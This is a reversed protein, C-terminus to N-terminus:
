RATKRRRGSAPNCCRSPASSTAPKRWHRLLLSRAYLYGPAREVIRGLHVQAQADDGLTYAVMGALMISPLYDPEARLAQLVTDRAPTNKQHYEILALLHKTRSRNPIIKDVQELQKRADDLKGTEIQITAIKVRAPVNEASIDIVKQYAALANATDGKRHSLDGKMLWADVNKPASALAREIFTAADDPKGDAEALLAQALLADAFDPQTKLAQELLALGEPKRGVGISAMARLTLIEAKVANDVNENLPVTDLVKQYERQLLLARGIKVRALDYRLDLAKSLEIQASNFDGIDIFSM